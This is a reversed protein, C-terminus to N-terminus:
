LYCASTHGQLMHCADVSFLILVCTPSLVNVSACAIFWGELNINRHKMRSIRAYTRHCIMGGTFTSARGGARGMRETM